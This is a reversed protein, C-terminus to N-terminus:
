TGGIKTYTSQTPVFSFGGFNVVNDWKDRCDVLRKRCGPTAIFTDGPQVPYHFAEHMLFESTAATYSRVEIPKLGANDGTLFQVTGEGYWDDETFEDMYKGTFQKNSSVSLVTATARVPVPMAPHVIVAEEGLLAETALTYDATYRAVGKTVRVEDFHANSTYEVAGARYRGVCPEDVSTASMSYAYGVVSGILLGDKFFHFDNGSRCVAFAYWTGVSVTGAAVSTARYTVDDSDRFAFYLKGDTSNYYFIFGKQASNNNWRAVIPNNGSKITTFRVRAEITFAGGGFAWDVGSATSVWDGTGDLYLSAGGFVSQATDIQADGSATWVKGTEDTFTTSGDAGDFHLLSTVSLWHEDSPGAEPVVYDDVVVKCGAYEQGGFRKQCQPSYTKGTSQNLADIALMMEATYRNDKLTTKGLFAFGIEEEDEVPNTWTTAFVYVRANDFVGSALSDYNVGAINAIGSLDLAGPSMNAESAVGTFEYGSDTKYLNAGILLDRPHTTLYVVGGWLPDIRMCYIKQETNAVVTKM